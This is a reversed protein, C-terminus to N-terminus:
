SGKAEVKARVQALVDLVEPSWEFGTSRHELENVINDYHKLFLTPSHRFRRTWFSSKQNASVDVLWADIQARLLSWPGVTDNTRFWAIVKQESESTMKERSANCAANALNWGSIFLFAASPPQTGKQNKRLPVSQTANQLLPTTNQLVGTNYKAVSSEVTNYKAVSSEKMKWVKGKNPNKLSYINSTNGRNEVAMYGNEVLWTQWRIITSRDVGIHWSLLKHSPWATPSDASTFTNILLWLSKPGHPINPNRQVSNPQSQHWDGPVRELTDAALIERM